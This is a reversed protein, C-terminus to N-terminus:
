GACRTNPPPTSSRFWVRCAPDTISECELFKAHTDFPLLPTELERLYLKCAGAVMHALEGAENQWEVYDFYGLCFAAWAHRVSDSNGSIRYIGELTLLSREELFKVCYDIVDYNLFCEIPKENKNKKADSPRITSTTSNPPRRQLFINVEKEIRERYAKKEKETQPKPAPSTGSSPVASPQSPLSVKGAVAHIGLSASSASHATSPSSSSESGKKRLEIDNRDKFSVVATDGALYTGEDKLYLGLDDANGNDGKKKQKCSALLDAATALGPVRVVKNSSDEVFLVKVPIHPIDSLATVALDVMKWVVANNDVAKDQSFLVYRSPRFGSEEGVSMIVGLATTNKFVTVTKKSAGFRVKVNRSHSQNSSMLSLNLPGGDKDYYYGM